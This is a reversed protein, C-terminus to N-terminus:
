LTSELGPLDEGDRLVRLDVTEDFPVGFYRYIQHEETIYDFGEGLDFDPQNVIVERPYSVCLHDGGDRIAGAAPVLLTKIGLFGSGIGIWVPEGSVYDYVIDKVEGVKVGDASVVDKGRWEALQELSWDV